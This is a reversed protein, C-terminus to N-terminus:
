REVSRYAQSLESKEQSRTRILRAEDESIGLALLFQHHAGPTRQEFESHWKAMADEDMGAARLM